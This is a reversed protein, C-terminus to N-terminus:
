IVMSSKLLHSSWKILCAGWSRGKTRTISWCSVLQPRWTLSMHLSFDTSITRRRNGRCALIIVQSSNTAWRLLSSSSSFSFSSCLFFLFASNSLFVPSFFALSSLQLFFHLGESSLAPWQAIQRLVAGGPNSASVSSHTWHSGQWSHYWTAQRSISSTGSPSYSNWLHLTFTLHIYHSHLQQTQIKIRVFWNM